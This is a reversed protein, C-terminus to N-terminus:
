QEVGNGDKDRSKKEGDGTGGSEGHKRELRRLPEKYVSITELEAQTGCFVPRSM